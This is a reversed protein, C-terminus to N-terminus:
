LLKVQEIKRRIRSVHYGIKTRCLNCTKIHAILDQQIRHAQVKCKGKNDCYKRNPYKQGLDKLCHECKRDTSIIATM